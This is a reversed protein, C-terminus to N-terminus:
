RRAISSQRKDKSLRLVLNKDGGRVKFHRWMERNDPAFVYVSIPGNFVQPLFFQGDEDTSVSGDSGTAGVQFQSAPNGDEGVVRGGLTASASHMSLNLVLQQGSKLTPPQTRLLKEQFGALTCHADFGANPRLHEAHFRGDADSQASGVMVGVFGVATYLQIRAGAVPKQNEDTVRGQISAWAGSEMRLTVAQGPLAITPHATTLEGADAFLRVRSLPNQAPLSFHGGAGTKTEHLTWDGHPGMVLFAVTAGAVAKGDPGIVTGTIPKMEKATPARPMRVVFERKEGDKLAFDFSSKAPLIFGPPPSNTGNSHVWMRQQGGLVRFRFFGRADTIAYQHNGQSDFLGMTQGRVPKGTSQALVTGQILAGRSLTFDQTNTPSLFNKQVSPGAYSRTLREEPYIWVYYKGPRLGALVYKGSADTRTRAIPQAGGITIVQARGTHDEGEEKGDVRRAMVLVNEAAGGNPLSVRGQIIMPTALRITKTTTSIGLRVFGKTSLPAFQVGRLDDLGSAGEKPLEDALAFQALKGSPLPPFVAVGRANTTAKMRARISRPMAMWSSASDGIRWLHVRLGPVPRGQPDLFLLQARVGHALPVKVPEVARGDPRSAFGGGMGRAGADVFLSIAFKDRVKPSFRFAGRPDSVTTEIPEGGNAMVRMAYVTAGVVPKEHEDVVTGTVVTAAKSVPAATGSAVTAAKSVPTANQARTVLRLPVLAGFALCLAAIFAIKFARHPRKPARNLRLLRTKLTAFGDAVGAMLPTHRTNMTGLLLAAYSRPAIRTSSLVMEDCASEVELALFRRAVWVLPHFWFLTASAWLLANWALDRRKEHALEHSLVADLDRSDANLLARPLVIAPRLIGVLFPAGGETELLRPARSVGMRRALVGARAVIQADDMPACARLTRRVRGFSRALGMLQVLLGVGYCILAAVPWAIRPSAPALSNVPRIFSNPQIKKGIPLIKKGSTLPFNEIALNKKGSALVKKGRAIPFMERALVKKGLPQIKKPMATFIKGGATEQSSVPASSPLVALSVPALPLLALATQLLAVRWLWARWSAPVRGDLLWQASLAVVLAALGFASARALAALVFSM